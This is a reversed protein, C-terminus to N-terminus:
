ARSALRSGALWPRVGKELESVIQDTIKQYIDAKM